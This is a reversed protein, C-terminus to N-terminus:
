SLQGRLDTTFKEFVKLVAERLANVGSMVKDNSTRLEEHYTELLILKNDEVNKVSLEIEVAAGPGTDSDKLQEFRMIRGQLVYDPRIRHQPLVVRTASKSSRLYDVLAEQLMRPPSQVWMHYNYAGLADDKQAYAIARSGLLGDASFLQVELSGDLADGMFVKDAPTLNLRYYTDQPAPPGGACASLFVLACAAVLRIAVPFFSRNQRTTM